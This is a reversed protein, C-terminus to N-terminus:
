AARSRKPPRQLQRLSHRLDASLDQDDSSSIHVTGQRCGLWKALQQRSATVYRGQRSAPLDSNKAWRQATAVPQGLFEAIAKWGRLVDGSNRNSTAHM